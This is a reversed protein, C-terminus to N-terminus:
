EAEKAGSKAGSVVRLVANGSQKVGNVIATVTVRSSAEDFEVVSIKVYEGSSFRIGAIKGM